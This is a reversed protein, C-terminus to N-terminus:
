REALSPAPRVRCVMRSLVAGFVVGFGVSIVSGLAIAWLLLLGEDEATASDELVPFDIVACQKAARSCRVGTAATQLVAGACRSALFGALWMPV